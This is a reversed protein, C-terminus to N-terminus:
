KHKLSIIKKIGVVINGSKNIAISYINLESHTLNLSVFFELVKLLAEAIESLLGENPIGGFDELFLTVAEKIEQVNLTSPSSLPLSFSLSTLSHFSLSRLNPSTWLWNFHNFHDHYRNKPTYYMNNNNNKNNHV